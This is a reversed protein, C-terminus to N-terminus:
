IELTFQMVVDGNTTAWQILEFFDRNLSDCEIKADFYKEHYGFDKDEFSDYISWGPAAACESRVCKYRQKVSIQM